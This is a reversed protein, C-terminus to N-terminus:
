PTNSGPPELQGTSPSIPRVEVPLYLENGDIDFHKRAGGDDVDYSAFVVFPVDLYSSHHIVVIGDKTTTPLAAVYTALTSPNTVVAQLAIAQRVIAWPFAPWLVVEKAVAGGRRLTVNAVSDAVTFGAVNRGIAATYGKLVPRPYTGAPGKVTLQTTLGVVGIQDEPLGRDVLYARGAAKTGEGTNSLPGSDWIASDANAVAFSAGTPTYVAFVGTTGQFRDMGLSSQVTKLQGFDFGSHRQDLQFGMVLDQDDRCPRQGTASDWCWRDDSQSEPTTTTGSDNGGPPGSSYADSAVAACVLPVLAPVLSTFLRANSM